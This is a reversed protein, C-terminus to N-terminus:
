SHCLSSSAVEKLSNAQEESPVSIVNALSLATTYANSREQTGLGQTSYELHSIAQDEFDVDLDLIIPIGAVSLTSLSEILLPNTHPNSTIVIDPKPDRGPIFEGNETVQCGSAVLSSKLLMMRNSKKELDPLLMLVNGQFGSNGFENMNIQLSKSDEKIVRQYDINLQLSRLADVVDAHGDARAQRINVEILALLLDDIEDLHRSVLNAPSDSNIIQDLLVAARMIENEHIVKTEGTLRQLLRAVAELDTPVPEEVGGDELEEAMTIHREITKNEPDLQLARLYISKATKGDGSALYFGGVILLTELDDPYDILIKIFIDLAEALRNENLYTRGLIKRVKLEPQM